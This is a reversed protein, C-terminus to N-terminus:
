YRTRAGRKTAPAKPIDAGAARATSLAVATVMKAQAAGTKGTAHVTRPMHEHVDTCVKSVLKETKSQTAM